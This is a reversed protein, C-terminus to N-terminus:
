AAENFRSKGGISFDIGAGSDEALVCGDGTTRRCTYRGDFGDNDNGGARDFSSFQRTEGDRPLYPLLDLRRYTDWGVLRTVSAPEAAGAPVAAPVAAEFSLAALALIGVAAPGPRTFWRRM